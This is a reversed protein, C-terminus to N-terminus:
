PAGIVEVLELDDNFVVFSADAGEGIMGRKNEIGLVRAPYLSAMRLAEDIAFGCHQVCNKVAKMMTLCSGSLTGDPVTYRDQKFVHRYPETDTEAVADTILWLREKMIAKSIRISAFDVHIGDAVVSCSVRPHDFIAGVMGPERGQFASMANFLHTAVRINEFSKTAQKYTANTHGASVVIGEELLYEIVSPDVMEPALTIMKIVGDAEELLERAEDRTPSHIYQLVHAGRKEPNIWPGEIHMGLLAGNPKETLYGRVTSIGKSIIAMDNTAMTLLFGTCGGGLCYASIADIAEYSPAASFLFKNGGYIQLDLLSSAINLNNLDRTEIGAPLALPDVIGEVRGDNVVIATNTLVEKGTYIRGNTIASTM